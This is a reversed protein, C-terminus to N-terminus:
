HARRGIRSPILPPRPVPQGASQEATPEASQAATREALARAGLFTPGPRLDLLLRGAIATALLAVTLSGDLRGDGVGGVWRVAGAAFLLGLPLLAHRVRLAATRAEVLLGKHVLRDRLQLVAESGTVQDIVANVTDAGPRSAAQLVTQDVLGSGAAGDTVLPAGTTRVRLHGRDILRTLAAEVVLRPGGRLYAAEDEDLPGPAALGVRPARALIRAAFAILLTLALGVTYLRLFDVDAISWLKQM